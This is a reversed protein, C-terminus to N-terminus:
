LVYRLWCRGLSALDLARLARHHKANNHTQRRYHM